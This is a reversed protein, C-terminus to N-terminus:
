WRRSILAIPRGPQLSGVEGDVSELSALADDLLKIAQEQAAKLEELKQILTNSTALEKRLVSLMGLYTKIEVDGGEEYETITNTNGIKTEIYSIRNSIADREAKLEDIKTTDLKEYDYEGVCAIIENVTKEVAEGLVNSVSTASNTTAGFDDLKNMVTKWMRSGSVNSKFTKEPEFEDISGKVNKTNTICEDLKNVSKYAM